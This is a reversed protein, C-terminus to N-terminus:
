AAPGPEKVRRRPAAAAPREVAPKTAAPASAAKRRPGAPPTAAGTAARARARPAAPKRAAAARPRPAGASRPRRPKAAAPEAPAAAANRTGLGVLSISRRRTGTLAALLAGLDLHLRGEVPVCPLRLALLAGLAGVAATVLLVVRLPGWAVSPTLPAIDLSRGVLARPPATMVVLLAGGAAVPVRLVTAIAAAARNEGGRPIGALVTTLVATLAVGLGAGRLGVLLAVSWGATGPGTLRLLFTTYALLILGVAAPWRPGIRDGIRGGLPLSVAACIGGLMATWAPFPGGGKAQHLLGPVELFGAGLCAVLALLVPAAIRTTRDHLPDLDVLPEEAALEVVTFVALAAAGCLGLLVTPPSGWGWSPGGALALLLLTIGAAGTVLGALDCRRGELAASRPLVALSFRAALLALPVTAAPLPRWGTQGVLWGGLLPGAAPLLLAGAAFAGVAVGLDRRPATRLLLALATAPLLGAAAGALTRLALLSPLNPALACLLSAGALALLGIRLLRDAGVRDAIRGSVTVSLALPIAYAAAVWGGGAGFPAQVTPVAVGVVGAGLLSLGASATLVAIAGATVAAPAVDSRSRSVRNAEPHVGDRRRAPGTAAPRRYAETLV